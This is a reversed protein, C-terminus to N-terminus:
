PRRAAFISRRVVGAEILELTATRDRLREDFLEAGWEGTLEDRFERSTDVYARVTRLFAQTVDHERVAAFGAAELLDTIARRNAAGPGRVRSARRYDRESAGPDIYITACALRGGPKLLERCARLV